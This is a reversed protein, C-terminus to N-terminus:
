IIATEAELNDDLDASLPKVLIKATALTVADTADNFQVKSKALDLNVKTTAPASGPVLVIKKGTKGVAAEVANAELLVIVGRDVYTQPIHLVSDTGCSLPGLEVVEGREPTFVVDVGENADAALLVIDGNPAVAIEGSGPTTGYSKVTLEGAGTGSRCQARHIVSARADLPLQLSELTALQETNGGDPTRQRLTQPIQGRLLAGLDVKRLIDALSNPNARSAAEKLTGM